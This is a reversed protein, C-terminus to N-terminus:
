SARERSVSFGVGFAVGAMGFCWYFLVAEPSLLSAVKGGFAYMVLGTPVVGLVAAALPFAAVPRYGGLVRKLIKMVPLYVVPVAAAFAM